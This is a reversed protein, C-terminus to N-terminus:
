ADGKMRRSLRALGQAGLRGARDESCQLIEGVQRWGLGGWIRLGLADREPEPLQRVEERLRRVREARLAAEDPAESAAAPSRPAALARRGAAAHRAHDIALNRAVALALFAFPTGPDLSERRAALRMFVEQFLDERVARDAVWGALYGAVRREVRALLASFAEADGGKWRRVLDAEDERSSPRSPNGPPFKEPESESGTRTM